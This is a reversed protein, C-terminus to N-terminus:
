GRQRTGYVAQWADSHISHRNLGLDALEHNSLQSLADVTQRYSRRKAIRSRMDGLVSITSQLLTPRTAQAHSAYSM